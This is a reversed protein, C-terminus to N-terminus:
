ELNLWTQHKKMRVQYGDSGENKFINVFIDYFWQRDMAGHAYFQARTLNDNFKVHIKEKRTVKEFATQMLWKLRDEQGIQVIFSDHVSLIPTDTRVFQEIIYECIRGDINMLKLGAGTCILHSILPHAKRINSLMEALTNDPFSYTYVEYDLQNRFAKYLSQEDSANLSLLLLLKIIKRAHEKNTISRVQIDYPDKSTANWYDIEIYAYALVVHLASYDIEVTPLNNIRISKRYSGDIRQWWGGYFRGGEEFTGNNFIRRVFKNHHSINVFLPKNMRRRRKKMPLEIRPINLSPIDIFSKHLLKNYRLLLESMKQTKKDPLYEVDKKDKDRLIVTARIESFTIDFCDFRAQKFLGVLSDEPWIRSLRGYWNANGEYGEKFGVLGADRLRHILKIISGKINQENYISKGKWFVQGNNYAAETMHVSLCLEPDDSWAIFLDLLLAKLHKTQIRVNDKPQELFTEYIHTVFEDIEIKESWRHLNIQRSHDYDRDRM